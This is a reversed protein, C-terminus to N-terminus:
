ETPQKNLEDIQKQDGNQKEEETGDITGMNGGLTGNNMNGHDQDRQQNSEVQPDDLQQEQQKKDYDMTAEQIIQNDYVISIM